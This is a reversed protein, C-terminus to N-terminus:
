SAPPTPTERRGEISAPRDIISRVGIYRKVFDPNSRIFLNVMPDLRNRLIDTAERYLTAVSQTQASRAVTAQRPGVKAEDFDQLAQTLEDINEQTVNLTALESKKTNAEALVSAALNSLREVDMKALGSENVNTLAQLGHDGSDYALVGLAECMLFLVDELDLRAEAKEKTAGTPTEQQRVAVGIAFVKNKFATFAVGFPVMQAWVANEEDLLAIVANHMNTRNTQKNDM